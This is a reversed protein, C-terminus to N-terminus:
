TLTSPMVGMSYPTNTLRDHEMSWDNKPKISTKGENDTITPPKLGTLISRWARVDSAQIFARMRTKWYSYNTEDLLPPRSIFEGESLILM